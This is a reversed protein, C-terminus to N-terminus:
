QVIPRQGKAVESLLQGLDVDGLRLQVQGSAIASVDLVEEILELLHQSASVVTEVDDRQEPTLKEEQADLLKRAAALIEDLPSRLEVSVLGLFEDRARDAAIARELAQRYEALRPALRARLRGLAGALEGAEDLAAVVIPRE